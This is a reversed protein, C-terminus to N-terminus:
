NIKARIIFTIVILTPKKKKVLTHIWRFNIIKMKEWFM